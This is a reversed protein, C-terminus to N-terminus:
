GDKIIRKKIVVPKVKDPQIRHEIPSEGNEQAVVNVKDIVNEKVDAYDVTETNSGKVESMSVAVDNKIETKKVSSLTSVDVNVEKQKHGCSFLLFTLSVLFIIKKM